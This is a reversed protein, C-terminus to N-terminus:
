PDQPPDGNERPRTKGQTLLPVELKRSFAPLQSQKKLNTRIKIVLKGRKTTSQASNPTNERTKTTTKDQFNLIKFM